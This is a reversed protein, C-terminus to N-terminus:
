IFLIIKLSNNQFILNYVGNKDLYNPVNIKGNIKKSKISSFFSKYSKDVKKITQQAVQSYLYKYSDVYTKIYLDCVDESYFMPIIINIKNYYNISEKKKNSKKKKSSNNKKNSYKKDRKNKRTIRRSKSYESNYIKHKIIFINITEDLFTLMRKEIKKPFKIIKKLLKLKNSITLYDMKISITKGNRIKGSLLLKNFLENIQKHKINKKIVSIDENYVNKLLNNIITVDDNGLNTKNKIIYKIIYIIDDISLLEYYEDINNIYYEIQLKRLYYLQRQFYIVSNYIARSHSCLTKLLNKKLSNNKLSIWIKAVNKVYSM